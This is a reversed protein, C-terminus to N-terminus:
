CVDRYYGTDKGQDYLHELFQTDAQGCFGDVAELMWELKKLRAEMEDFESLKRFIENGLKEDYLEDAGQEEVGPCINFSWANCEDENLQYIFSPQGKAQKPKSIM